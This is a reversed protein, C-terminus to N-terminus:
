PSTRAATSDFDGVWPTTRAPRRRRDARPGGLRRRRSPRDVARRRRGAPRARRGGSTRGATATSTAARRPRRTARVEPHRTRPSAMTPPTTAASTPRATPRHDRCLRDPRRRQLRRHRDGVAPRGRQDDARRQLQEPGARLLISVTSTGLQAGRHGSHRRRQLRGSAIRRPTREVTYDGSEAVFGSGTNRYVRIPRATGCPSPSTRPAPRRHLRRPGVASPQPAALPTGAAAAFTGSPQQLMVALNGPRDVPHHPLEGRGRDPGNAGDFDGVAAFNSGDGGLPFPSPRTRFAGGPGALLVRLDDSSCRRHRRPRPPGDRDFDAVVVGNPSTGPDHVALGAGAGMCERRCAPALLTTAAAAAVRGRMFGLMAARRARPCGRSVPPSIPRATRAAGQRRALAPAEHRPPHPRQEYPRLDGRRRARAAARDVRARARQGLPEPRRMGREGTEYPALTAPLERKEKATFGCTHGVPAAHRRARAPRPDALRGHGGGQGAALRPRRRRDHPRAQDQVM